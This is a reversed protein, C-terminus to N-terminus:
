EQFLQKWAGRPKGVGGKEPTILLGEPAGSLNTGTQLKYEKEGASVVASAKTIGVTSKLGSVPGSSNGVELYDATNFLGDKNLDFVSYGLRAGTQADLEMLWSTGGVARITSHCLRASFSGGLRLPAQGGAGRTAAVPRVLDLYWGRKADNGNWIVPNDSVMSKGASRRQRWPSRRFSSCTMATRMPLGQAMMGYATSRKCPLIRLTPPRSIVVPAFFIMVGQGVVPPEGIELPATIPQRKGSGDRAVFLPAPNSGSSYASRWSNGQRIFRWLNGQLDGVYIGDGLVTGADSDDGLIRGSVDYLAPPSVIGNPNAADGAKTDIPCGPILAGTKLDM